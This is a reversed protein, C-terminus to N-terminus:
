RRPRRTRDGRGLSAKGPPSLDAPRRSHLIGGCTQQVGPSSRGGGLRGRPRNGPQPIQPPGALTGGHQTFIPAQPRWADKSPAGGQPRADRPPSGRWAQRAAAAANQREPRCVLTKKPRWLKARNKSGGSLALPLLVATTQLKSRPSKLRAGKSAAGMEPMRQAAAAPPGTGARPLRQQKTRGGNM